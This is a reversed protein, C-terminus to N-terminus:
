TAPTWDLEGEGELTIETGGGEGEISYNQNRATMIAEGSYVGMSEGGDTGDDKFLEVEYAKRVGFADSYTTEIDINDNGTGSISWSSGTVRLKRVGPRNPKACDRQFRENTNATRSISVGEIGCMLTFVAPPGDATKISLLAFDANNPFSM